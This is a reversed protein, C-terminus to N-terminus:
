NHIGNAIAVGRFRMSGCAHENKGDRGTVCQGCLGPCSFVKEYGIARAAERVADHYEKSKYREGRMQIFRRPVQVALFEGRAMPLALMQQKTANRAKGGSSINLVYNSPWREGVELLEDWSKSYGYGRIDPRLRFLKFWFRVTDSDAFDGDVYMRIDTDSPIELFADAIVERRFKLLATNMLQRWYPGAYRWSTLSYCWKACEGVGPCTFLPVTSWTYFPLKDNGDPMFIRYPPTTTEGELYRVVKEGFLRWTSGPGDTPLTSFTENLGKIVKSLTQGRGVLRAVALAKQRGFVVANKRSNILTM